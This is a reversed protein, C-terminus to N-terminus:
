RYEWGHVIGRCAALKAVFHIGLHHAGLRAKGLILVGLHPRNEDRGLTANDAGAVVPGRRAKVILRHGVGAFLLFQGVVDQIRIGAFQQAMVLELGVLVGKHDM